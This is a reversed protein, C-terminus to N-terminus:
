WEEFTYKCYNDLTYMRCIIRFEKDFIIKKKYIKTELLKLLIVLAERCKKNKKRRHIWYKLSLM